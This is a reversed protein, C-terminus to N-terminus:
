KNKLERVRLWAGQHGQEAAKNFWYLAQETKGAGLMGEAVLNQAGRAGSEAADVCIDFADQETGINDRLVSVFTNICDMDKQEIPSLEKGHSPLSAVLCVLLLTLLRM